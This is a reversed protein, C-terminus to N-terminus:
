MLAHLGDLREAGLATAFVGSGPQAPDMGRAFLYLVGGFHQEARYGSLREKLYRHLALAYVHYQLVYHASQMMEELGAAGYAEWTEGLKNSKHDVVWWAGEHEFVLDISGTMFGHLPPFGLTRCREAYSEPLAKALAGPTLRAAGAEFGGAVPFMFDLENLRRAKAIDALRCGPGVGGESLLPADIMAALGRELQEGQEAPFGHAAMQADVVARLQEPRQFDHLELIKHVLNGTGRGGPFDWLTVRQDAAAAGGVELEQVEDRDASPPPAVAGHHDPAFRVLSTFSARRWEDDLKELRTVVRESLTARDEPLSWQPGEGGLEWLGVQSLGIQPHNALEELDPRMRDDSFTRGGVDKLDSGPRQHLLWALPADKGDAGAWYVTCRHKARTMAVYAMRLDEQRKEHTHQELNEPRRKTGLDVKVRDGDDPDHFTLNPEDEDRVYVARWLWPCWVLPFELGKSKHMTLVQVAEGEGELRLTAEEDELGPAGRKLWAVVGAPGLRKRRSTADIVDGLHALDTVRRPGARQRLLRAEVGDDELMKQFAARFGKSVWLDHWGRLGGAHRNWAELSGEMAVIDDATRGMLPTVLASRVLRADQPAAMAELVRTLPKLLPSKTVSADVSHRVAPVGANLLEQQVAAAQKNSRTLVACHRPGVKVPGDAEPDDIVLGEGLTAVIDAAVLGPLKRELQGSLRRRVHGGKRDEMQVWRLRLVPAKAGKLRSLPRAAEVRYYGIEEDLFAKQLGVRGWLHNLADVLHGDSRWNRKLADEVEAERKATRYTFIDGGRFAYIAQKPDGVMLLRDAFCAEFIAWQVPDTDQFEDVLVHRYADRLKQRLRPGATPHELADRVNTLQDRYTWEDRDRLRRPLRERVTAIFAHQLGLRWGEVAAGMRRHVDILTENADFIEHELDKGPMLAKQVYARSFRELFGLVPTGVGPDDFWKTLAVEAKTTNGKAFGNRGAGARKWVFGGTLLADIVESRGRKWVRTADEVAEDWESLDPIPERSGSPLFLLEPDAAMEGLKRLAKPTLDAADLARKLTTPAGHFEARWFDEVIENLYERAEGIVTAGLPAMCEFAFRELTRTCFGHITSIAADDFDVIGQRLRQRKHGSAELLGKQLRARVRSRLEAAAAKTYTVVLIRDIPIGDDAVLGVVREAITYTKGTGASAELLKM